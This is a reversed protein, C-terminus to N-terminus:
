DKTPEDVDMCWDDVIEDMTKGTFEKVKSPQLMSDLFTEQGYTRVFYDGFASRLLYETKLYYPYPHDQWRRALRRALKLQDEPGDFEEEILEEILALQEKDEQFYLYQTEFESALTFYCAASENMWSEYAPDQAGGRLWFLYHAYEHGLCHVTTIYIGATNYRVSFYGAATQGGPFQYYFSTEEMLQVPILAAEEVAFIARLQRLQEDLWHFTTLIKDVNAFYDESIWNRLFYNDAQFSADRFVELYQTRFKMPCSSSNYAFVLYTPEFDFGKAQAYDQRAQLFAEESRDGELGSFIEVSAGKCAAIDAPATYVEDFCPYVLNLLSSDQLSAGQTVHDTQWSLEGAIHQSLAYLYGYNTYDGLAAQVTTLVQEWTEMASLGFYATANQSNTWNAYEPLIRFTLGATSIGYDGLQKCLTEQSAVFRNRTEVSIAGDFDYTHGEVTTQLMDEQLIFGSGYPEKLRQYVETYTYEPQAAETENSLPEGTSRCAAFLLLLSLITIMLAYPKM